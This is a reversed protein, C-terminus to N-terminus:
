VRQVTTTTPTSVITQNITGAQRLTDSVVLPKLPDLGYLNYIELLMTLQSPTLGNVQANIKALETTLNTRVAAANQAATPVVSLDGTVVNQVTSVTNVLSSVVAPYQAVITDPTYYASAYDDSYLVGAVAVARLDVVLKWGNTLFYVDGTFGGPIVDLGSYRMALLYKTNDDLALWKVWATYLETRINLTTVEPNVTILKNVGDITIKQYLAWYSWDAYM